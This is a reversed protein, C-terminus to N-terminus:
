RGPQLPSGGAPPVPAASAPPAIAALYRTMEVTSASYLRQLEDPFTAWESFQQARASLFAEACRSALRSWGVTSFCGKLAHLAAALQDHDQRSGAEVIRPWIAEFDRTVARHMRGQVAALQAGSLGPIAAALYRFDVLPLEVPDAPQPATSGPRQASPIKEFLRVLCTQFARPTIPKTLCDDMGAALCAERDEALSNATLAVLKPRRDRDPHLRVIERAAELGDMVPMQIDLLILDFSRRSLAALVGAGDGVIEAEFGFYGMLQRLLERNTRVDDAALIRLPFRAGLQGSQAEGPAPLAPESAATSAGPVPDPTSSKKQMPRRACFLMFM